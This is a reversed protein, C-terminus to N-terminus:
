TLTQAIEEVKAISQERDLSEKVLETFTTKYREVQQTAELYTASDRGELHVVDQDQDRFQLISFPGGIVGPTVLDAPAVAFGVESLGNTLSKMLFTLQNKMVGPEGIPRRLAFESVVLSLDLPGEPRDETLVKQRGMRLAVFRRRQEESHDPYFLRAVADVYSETQLLGPILDSEFSWIASSGQELEMYRAADDSVMDGELVDSYQSVLGEGKSLSENVLDNLADARGQAKYLKLLDRVDRARPVGKGNELRSVKSSSCELVRAADEIRLDAAVRLDRLTAGLLRRAVIPSRSVQGNGKRVEPHHALNM